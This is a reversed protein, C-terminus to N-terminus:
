DGAAADLQVVEEEHVCSAGLSVPVPYKFRRAASGNRGRGMGCNQGHPNTVRNDGAGHGQHQAPFEERRRPKTRGNLHASQRSRVAGHKRRKGRQPLADDTM